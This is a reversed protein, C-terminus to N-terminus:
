CWQRPGEVPAGRERAGVLHVVRRPGGVPRAVDGHAMERVMPAAELQRAVDGHAVLRVM